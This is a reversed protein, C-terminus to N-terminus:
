KSGRHESLRVIKVPAQPVFRRDVLYMVRLEVLVNIENRGVSEHLFDAGIRCEKRALERMYKEAATAQVRFGVPDRATGHSGVISSM